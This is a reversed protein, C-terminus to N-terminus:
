GIAFWGTLLENVQDPRERHMYHAGDELVRAEYEGSFCSAEEATSSPALPDAAGFLSLTPASSTASEGMLPVAVEPREEPLRLLARYYAMAAEVAGEGRLTEKVSAIHEPDAPQNSWYAWLHDVLGLDNAQLAGEAFPSLQFFWVHFLRQIREPSAFFTAFMKPHNLAMTVAREIRQPYLASAAYTALAGWDTGVVRAREEGLVTILAALDDALAGADYRGNAPIESPPHGRLFPAVVRYGAEPLAHLQHSWTWANDPFGHLLVVLPGQGAELYAIDIGNANVTREAIEGM